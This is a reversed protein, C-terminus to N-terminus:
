ADGRARLSTFGSAVILCLTALTVGDLAFTLFDVLEQPL